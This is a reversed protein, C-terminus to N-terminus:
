GRMEVLLIILLAAGCVLWLTKNGLVPAVSQTAVPAAPNLM